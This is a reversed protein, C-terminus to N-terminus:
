ALQGAAGADGDRRDGSVVRRLRPLVRFLRSDLEVDALGCVQPLDEREELARARSFSSLAQVELRCLAWRGRSSRRRSRSLSIPTSDPAWRGIGTRPRDM